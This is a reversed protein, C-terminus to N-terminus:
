TTEIDVVALPTSDLRQDLVGEGTSVPVSKPQYVRTAPMAINELTERPNKAPIEKEGKKTQLLFLGRMESSGSESFVAFKQSIIQQTKRPFETKRASENEERTRGHRVKLM